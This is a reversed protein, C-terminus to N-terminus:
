TKVFAPAATENAFIAGIRLNWPNDDRYDWYFVAGISLAPGGLFFGAMEPSNMNGVTCPCLRDTRAAM